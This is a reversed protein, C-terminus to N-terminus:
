FLRYKNVDKVVYYIYNNALIIIGKKTNLNNSTSHEKQAKTEEGLILSQNWEITNLDSFSLYM